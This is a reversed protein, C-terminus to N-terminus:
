LSCTGGFPPCYSFIRPAVALSYSEHGYQEVALKGMAAIDPDTWDLCGYGAVVAHVAATATTYPM